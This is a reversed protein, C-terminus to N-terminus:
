FKLYTSDHWILRKAVQKEWEANSKLSKDMSIYNMCKFWFIYDITYSLWNNIGERILSALITEM